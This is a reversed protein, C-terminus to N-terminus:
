RRSGLPADLNIDRLRGAKQETQVWDVAKWLDGNFKINVVPVQELIALLKEDAAPASLPDGLLHFIVEVQEDDPKDHALRASLEAYISFVEVEKTDHLVGNVVLKANKASAHDLKAAVAKLGEGLARLSGPDTTGKIAALFREVVVQAQSDSLKAAVAKLGEGLPQLAYYAHTTGKIAALFPEVAAQAQSDSLKAPAAKLAGGLVGLAV